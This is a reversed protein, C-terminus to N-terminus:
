IAQSRCTHVVCQLLEVRHLLFERAVSFLAITLTCPIDKTQLGGAPITRQFCWVRFSHVLCCKRQGARGGGWPRVNLCGHGATLPVLIGPKGPIAPM